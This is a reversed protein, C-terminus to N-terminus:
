CTEATRIRLKRALVESVCDTQGVDVLQETSFSRRGLGSALNRSIRRHIGKDLMSKSIDMWPPSNDRKWFALCALFFYRQVYSKSFENAM